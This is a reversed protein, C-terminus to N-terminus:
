AEGKGHQRLKTLLPLIQLLTISCMESHTVESGDTMVVRVQSLGPGLNHKATKITSAAEELAGGAEHLLIRLTAVEDRAADRQDCIAHVDLLQAPVGELAMRQVFPAIATKLNEFQERGIRLAEETTLPPSCIPCASPPAKGHQCQGSIKMDSM